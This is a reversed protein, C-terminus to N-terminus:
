PAPVHAQIRLALAGVTAFDERRLDSEILSFGFTKEVFVLMEVFGMSDLGLSDLTADTRVEGARLGLISAVEGILKQEIEQLTM